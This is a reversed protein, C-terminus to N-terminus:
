IRQGPLINYRQLYHQYKQYPSLNEFAIVKNIWYVKKANGLNVANASLGSPGNFTTIQNRGM